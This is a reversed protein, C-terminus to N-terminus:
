KKIILAVILSIIIQTMMLMISLLQYDSMLIGEKGYIGKCTEIYDSPEPRRYFALRGGNKM